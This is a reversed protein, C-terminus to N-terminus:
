KKRERLIRAKRAVFYDQLEEQLKMEEDKTLEGSNESENRYFIEPVHNQFKSNSYNFEQNGLIYDTSVGFIEALELVINGPPIIRGAEYNAVNTRKMGLREALGEQSFGFDIRCKKIRQGLLKKEEENV